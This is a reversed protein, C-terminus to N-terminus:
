MGGFTVISKMTSSTECAQKLPLAVAWGCGGRTQWVGYIVGRHHTRGAAQVAGLAVEVMSDPALPHGLPVQDQQEKPAYKQPTRRSSSTAEARAKGLSRNLESTKMVAPHVPLLPHCSCSYASQFQITVINKQCIM